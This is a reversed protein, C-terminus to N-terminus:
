SFLPHISVELSINNFTINKKPLLKAFFHVADDCSFVDGGFQKVFNRLRASCNITKLSLRYSYRFSFQLESYTSLKWLLLM